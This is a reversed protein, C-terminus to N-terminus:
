LAMKTINEIAATATMSRRSNQNRRARRDVALAKIEICHKWLSYAAGKGVFM